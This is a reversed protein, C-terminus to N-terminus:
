ASRKDIFIALKSIFTQQEKKGVKYRPKEGRFLDLLVISTGKSASIKKFIIASHEM